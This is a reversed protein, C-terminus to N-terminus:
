IESVIDSNAQQECYTKFGNLMDNLKRKFVFLFIKVKMKNFFNLPDIQNSKDSNAHEISFSLKTLENEESLLYNIVFSIGGKLEVGEAYRIINKNRKSALTVFEISQNEFVCTHKTNVRNIKENTLVEKIGPVWKLKSKDDILISHVIEMPANIAILNNSESIETEDIDKKQPIIINKKLHSLTLYKTSIEGFDEIKEINEKLEYLKKQALNLEQQTKLYTETLLLYERSSVSNKLLKHALIVDSGLIKNFSQIAVEKLEGYHGIFKLSLNSSTQCAGCQCVNDRKIIALHEHFRTFINKSQNLVDSISPPVGLNYFLVADGEVESINFKMENGEIIIEILESIIHQSHSIETETIFKTFGSIDPIYIFASNGM